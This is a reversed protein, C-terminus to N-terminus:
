ITEENFSAITTGETTTGAPNASVNDTAPDLLDHITMWEDTMWEDARRFIVGGRDLSIRIVGDADSLGAYGDPHVALIVGRFGRLPDNSYKPTVTLGIRWDQKAEGM